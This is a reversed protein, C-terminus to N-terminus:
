PSHDSAAKRRGASDPRSWRAIQGPTAPTPAPRRSRVRRVCDRTALIVRQAAAPSLFALYCVLITESFFGLRMNFGLGLHLLVGLALVLPRAARNWVLMGLMLEVALTWYTLLSSFLLSHTLPGPLPFRQFDQLRVAYSVATGDRWFPGHLKLWVSALYLVSIQVQILRLAWPARAPFEWFRDRAVRWRDASFSAGAPALMLFFLLIRLLSDGSNWISPARHEFSVVAVFVVVSALRTRYGVLLGLSALLLAGYLVLAVTYSPFVSLVDWSGTPPHVPAIPEVGHDSFFAEFDPLLSLGWGLTVFGVAIRIIALGATSQPEFWFRQWAGSARRM